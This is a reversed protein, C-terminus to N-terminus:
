GAPDSEPSLGFEGEADEAGASLVSLAGSDGGGDLPDLYRFDTRGDDSFEGRDSTGRSPIMKLWVGKYFDQPSRRAERLHAVAGASPVTDPDILFVDVGINEYIWNLKEPITAQKGIGQEILMQWMVREDADDDSEGESIKEELISSGAEGILSLYRKDLQERLVSLRVGRLRGEALTVRYEEWLGTAILRRRFDARSLYARETTPEVRKRAM